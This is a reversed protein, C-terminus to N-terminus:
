KEGKRYSLMDMSSDAQALYQRFHHNWNRIFSGGVDYMQENEYDDMVSPTVHWRLDSRAAEFSLVSLGDVRDLHLSKWGWKGSKESELEYVDAAITHRAWPASVRLISWKTPHSIRTFKARTAKQLYLSKPVVIRTIGHYSIPMAIAAHIRKEITQALEYIREQQDHSFYHPIYPEIDRGAVLLSSTM